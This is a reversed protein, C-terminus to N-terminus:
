PRPWPITSDSAIQRAVAAAGLANLHSPDQFYDYRDLGKGSLDRWFFGKTSALQQMHRRFESEYQFRVSDLYDPTLPLNVFVVPIQRARTYSLLSDMAAAQVGGLDFAEYDRDYEGPVYPYIQYYTNPDFREEVAVFGNADVSSEAADIADQLLDATLAPELTANASTIKASALVTSGSDIQKANGGSRYGQSSVIEGYTRDERGSNLARVGDVWLILKPLEEPPILDRVMLDVVQATAGHIGFNFVKLGNYGQTGLVYQLMQPDIGQAARSSGLILIDAPGIARVYSRYLVLKEDLLPSNFTPYSFGLDATSAQSIAYAANRLYEIVKKQAFARKPDGPPVAQMLAVADIWTRAVLDWDEPSRANQTLTWAELAREVALDFPEREVQPAVDTPSTEPTQGQIPPNPSCSWIALAAVVLAIPRVSLFWRFNLIM